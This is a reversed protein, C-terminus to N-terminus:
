PIISPILLTNIYSERATAFNRMVEVGETTNTDWGGPLASLAWWFAGWLADHAVIEGEIVTKMTNIRGIVTGSSFNSAMLTTFRSKFANRFDSNSYLWTFLTASDGKLPDLLWVLTDHNPANIIAAAPWTKGGFSGDTDFLIWRWKGGPVRPRWYKINTFPWDTNNFFIQAITYDIFSDIDIRTQITAYNTADAPNAGVFALIDQFDQANGEVVRSDYSELIDVNAPDVGPHHAALYDENVKERINHIGWYRGNLFVVSPQYAQRDVDMGACLSQLMADRFMTRVWDDGSNRLILSKFSTIPSGFFDYEMAETGYEPRAFVALSKQLFGRSWGGFIQVGADMDLRRVQSDDFFEIHARREWDQRYNETGDVAPLNVYPEVVPNAPNDGPVYIGAADDWLDAPDIAISFVPLTTTEDVFYTRYADRGALIGDRYARARILTTSTLNIPDTYVAGGCYTISGTYGPDPAGGPYPDVLDTVHITYPRPGPTSGDVTYYIVDDPNPTGMAVDVSVAYFGSPESFTIYRADAQAVAEMVDTPFLGCGALLVAAAPLLLRRPQHEM